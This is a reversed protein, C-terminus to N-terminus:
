GFNKASQPSASNSGAVVASRMGRVLELDYFLASQANASFGQTAAAVGISYVYKGDERRKWEEDLQDVQM